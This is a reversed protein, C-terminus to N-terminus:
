DGVAVAGPVIPNPVLKPCPRANLQEDFIGTAAVRGLPAVTNRVLEALPPQLGGGNTEHL